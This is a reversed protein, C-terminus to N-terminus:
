ASIERELVSCFIQEKEYGFPHGEYVEYLCCYDSYHHSTFFHGDKYYYRGVCTYGKSLLYNHYNLSSFAIQKM